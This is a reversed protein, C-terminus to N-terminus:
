QILNKDMLDSVFGKVQAEAEERPIGHEAAMQDVIEGVPKGAMLLRWVSGANVNASYIEGKDIDLIVLGDNMVNARVHETPRSFTKDDAVQAITAAASAASREDEEPQDAVETLEADNARLSLNQAAGVLLLPGVEFKTTM